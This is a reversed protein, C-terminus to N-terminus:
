VLPKIFEASRAFLVEHIFHYGLIHLMKKRINCCLPKISLISCVLWTEEANSIDSSQMLNDCHGTCKAMNLGLFM